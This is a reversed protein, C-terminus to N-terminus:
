IQMSNVTAYIGLEIGPTATKERNKEAEIGSLKKM